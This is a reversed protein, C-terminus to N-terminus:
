ALRWLWLWNVGLTTPRAWLPKRSPPNSHHFFANLAQCDICRSVSKEKDADAAEKGGPFNDNDPKEKDSSERLGDMYRKRQGVGGEKEIKKKCSIEM